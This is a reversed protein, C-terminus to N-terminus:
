TNLNHVSDKVGTNQDKIGTNQQLVGFKKNEFSLVHTLLSFLQCFMLMLLIFVLNRTLHELDNLTHCGCVPENWSSGYRCNKFHQESHKNQHGKSKPVLGLKM